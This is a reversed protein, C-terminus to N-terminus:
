TAESWVPRRTRKATAHIARDTNTGFECNGVVQRKLGLVVVLPARVGVNTFHAEVEVELRVLSRSM